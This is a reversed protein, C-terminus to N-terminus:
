ETSTYVCVQPFLHHTIQHNLGNPLYLWLRSPGNWDMTSACQHAYWEKNMTATTTTSTTTEGTKSSETTAGEGADKGGGKNVNGDNNTTTTTLPLLYRLV